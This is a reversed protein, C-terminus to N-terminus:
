GLAGGLFRSIILSFAGIFMGVFAYMVYTKAMRIQRPEGESTTYLYAAYAIVLMAVVETFYGVVLALQVLFDSFERAWKAGGDGDLSLLGAEGNEGETEKDGDVTKCDFVAKSLKSWTEENIVQDENYKSYNGPNCPAAEVENLNLYFYSSGFFVISLLFFIIKRKMGDGKRYFHM